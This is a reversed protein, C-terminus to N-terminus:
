IRRHLTTSRHDHLTRLSMMVPVDLKQASLERSCKPHGLYRLISPDQHDSDM